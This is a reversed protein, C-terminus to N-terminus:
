PKVLQCFVSSGDVEVIRPKLGVGQGLSRLREPTMRGTRFGGECVIVGDRSAKLDVAGVLGEDAQAQFWALREPWFSDSYSSFFVLGGTRVVRLAEKVLRKRDVKFACIGNQVCVVADFTGDGFGLELADMCLYSCRVESPALRRALHLSEKATDIGVAWRATQALRVTVRGYGCGLELICDTDRVFSQVHEIEAELYRKVRPSAIEYCRQLRYGSLKDAYYSDM